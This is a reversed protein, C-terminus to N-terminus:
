QACAFPQVRLVPRGLLGWLPACRSGVSSFPGRRPRCLWRRPWFHDGLHSLASAPLGRPGCSQPTGPGKKLLPQLAGWFPIKPGGCLLDKPPPPPQPSSPVLCLTGEVGGTAKCTGLFLEQAMQRPGPPELVAGFGMTPGEPAQFVSAEQELGFSLSPTFFPGARLERFPPVANPRGVPHLVVLGWLWECVM